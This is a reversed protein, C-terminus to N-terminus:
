VYIYMHVYIHPLKLLCMRILFTCLLLCGSAETLNQLVVKQRKKKNLSETKHLYVLTGKLGKLPTLSCGCRQPAAAAAARSSRM